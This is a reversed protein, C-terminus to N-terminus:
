KSYFMRSYRYLEAELDAPGKNPRSDLFRCAFRGNKARTEVLHHIEEIAEEDTKDGAITYMGIQYIDDGYEEMLATRDNAADQGEWADFGAEAFNSMQLGVNGCSHLSIFMGMDHAAKTIKQYQPVYIERYLEPSFFPAKQSGMDDHWLIM